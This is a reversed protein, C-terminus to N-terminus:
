TQVEGVARTRYGTLSPKQPKTTESPKFVRAELVKLRAELEEVRRVIEELKEQIPNPTPQAPLNLYTKVARRIVESVSVGENRAREEIMRFVEDEIRFNVKKM